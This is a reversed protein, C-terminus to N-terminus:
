GMPLDTMLINETYALSEWMHQKKDKQMEINKSDIAIM